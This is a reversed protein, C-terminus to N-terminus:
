FGGLKQAVSRGIRRFGVIGVTKGAMWYIPRARSWDWGGDKVISHFHPLRQAYSLLMGIAHASVEDLCYDPVNVVSIDSRQATTINVNDISIGSRGVVQLSNISRLVDATVQTGADVILANADEIGKILAEPDQADTTRVTADIDAFASYKANFDIVKSDFVVIHATM